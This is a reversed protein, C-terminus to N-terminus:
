SLCKKYISLTKNACDEWSFLKSRELGKNILINKNEKNYLIKEMKNSIEEIDNPNFLEAADGVTELIAEHNSSIVPCGLSMAEITTLGFGEYKSPFLFAEANKYLYHLQNDDGNIQIFQNLDFKNKQILDLEEKNFNGGGFCVIKFDKKVKNSISYAKILNKFNKYKKRDGVYLVYPTDIIQVKEHVIANFKKVGLYVVEVKKEPLNYFNLLDLKTKKSICIIYDLNELSAAKHKFNKDFGYDEYYIEHILDMVTLINKSKSNKNLNTEYFTKHIIDPKYYNYYFKSFIQNYSKILKRSYKPYKKIYINLNSKYNSNKLFINSHLPALIKTEQNKKLFEEYLSIYYRSIGGLTQHFFISYDFLIKM